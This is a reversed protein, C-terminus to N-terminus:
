SMESDSMDTGVKVKAHRVVRTRLIYGKELEEMVIGKEGPCEAIAEHINPNFPKGITEIQKLGQDGLLKELQAVSMNFGEVWEKASNKVHEPLHEKTRNLNDIIPLLSRILDLNAMEILSKRDEEYRRKLNTFDAMARKAAEKVQEFDARIKELNEEEAAPAAPQQPKQQPATKADEIPIKKQSHKKDHTNDDM